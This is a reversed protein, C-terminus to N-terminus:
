REKRVFSPPLIYPFLHVGAKRRPSAEAIREMMAATNM